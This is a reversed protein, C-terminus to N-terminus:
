RGLRRRDRPVRGADRSLDERMDLGGATARRAAILRAVYLAAALLVGGDDVLGFPGFVVEPVADVPSVLYTLAGVAAVVGRLPVRYKVLVYGGAAVLALGVLGVVTLIVLATTTFTDHDM